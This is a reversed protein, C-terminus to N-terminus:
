EIGYPAVSSQEEFLDELKCFSGVPLGGRKEDSCVVDMEGGELEILDKWISVEGQCTGEAAAVFAAAAPFDTVDPSGTVAPGATVGPAAAAATAMEPFWPQCALRPLATSARGGVYGCQAEESGGSRCNEQQASTCAPESTQQGDSSEGGPHEDRGPLGSFFSRAFELAAPPLVGRSTRPIKHPRMCQLQQSEVPAATCQFVHQSSPQSSTQSSPPSCDVSASSAANHLATLSPFSPLSHPPDRNIVTSPASPVPPTATTILATPSFPAASHCHSPPSAIASPPSTLPSHPAIPSTAPTAIPPATHPPVTSHLSPSLSNPLASHLVRSSQAPGFTLPMRSTSQWPSTSSLPRALNPRAASAHNPSLSTILSPSFSPSLSSLPWDLAPLSGSSLTSNKLFLFRNCCAKNGRALQRGRVLRGWQRTGHRLAHRLLVADEQWSPVIPSLRYLTLSPSPPGRAAAAGRGGLLGLLYHVHYLYTFSRLDYAM